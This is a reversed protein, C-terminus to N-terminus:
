QPRTSTFSHTSTAQLFTTGVSTFVSSGREERLEIFYSFQSVDIVIPTAPDLNATHISDNTYLPMRTWGDDDSTASRIVTVEGDASVRLLRAASRYQPEHNETVYYDLEIDTLTAGDHVRLPVLTRAGAVRGTLGTLTGVTAEVQSYRFGRPLNRASAMTTVIARTRAAFEFYDDDGFIYRKGSAPFVSPANILSLRGHLEIGAGAIIIPSSPAWIGEGADGNIAKKTKEDINRLVTALGTSLGIRWQAETLETSFHAM